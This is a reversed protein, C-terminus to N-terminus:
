IAWNACGSSSHWGSRIPARRNLSVTGIRLPKPREQARAFLPWGGMAGGLMTIFERRRMM